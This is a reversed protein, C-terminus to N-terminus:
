PGVRDGTARLRSRASALARRVAGRLRPDAALLGGGAVLVAIAAALAATGVAAAATEPVGLTSSAASAAAGGAVAAVAGAVATRGALAVAAPGAARRLLLVLAVAAAALGASHAAGLLAVVRDAPVVPALAVAVVAVLLWGGSTAAAAWGPRGRAVLGRGAVAVVGYGLLGPAFAVLAAAMVDDPVDGQGVLRFFAAVPAAAGALVAAGVSTVALVAALTWASTTAFTETGGPSDDHGARALRPFSATALPVALVAYPLLFVMWTNQFVVLAGAGGEGNAVRICVLLAVQQAVVGSVGAAALRRGRAAEGAPFRLRPRGLLGGAWAPLLTTLALVLVGATTGGALVALSAADLTALDDRDGDFVQAFGLYAAMVVVSSLVPALAAAAFRTHAQLVGATVVAVGYLPIQPAFIRLMAATSDVAAPGGAGALLLGALPGALGAGLGAVPILVLLAWGLLAGASHRSAVLDSRALGASVLPVVAAALAGGAVVEFLVNPLYNATAYATGLVTVGVTAQFVLQRLLGVARAVVTLTAVLLASRGVGATV